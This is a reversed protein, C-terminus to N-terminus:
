FRQQAEPAVHDTRYEQFLAQRNLKAPKKEILLMKDLLIQNQKGIEIDRELCDFWLLLM